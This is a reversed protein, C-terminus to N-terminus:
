NRLPDLRNVTRHLQEPLLHSYMETVKSNSHGLLKQVEYLSVGDQVLWSAFTHRLSHFCIPHDLKVAEVIERFCESVFHGRLKRQKSNLFVRDLHKPQDNIVKLATANLPVVRERGSKTSYSNSNAVLIRERVLDVNAWQLNVIESRRLGTNVAFTSVDRLWKMPMREILTEFESKTLFDPHREPIKLFRLSRFPNLELLDWKIAQNFFAKLTRLEINVTVPCIKKLRFSKYADIDIAKIKGIPRDSIFGLFPTLVYGLRTTSSACHHVRSFEMYRDKLVSLTTSATRRQDCNSKFKTLFM